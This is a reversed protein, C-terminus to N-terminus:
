LQTAMLVLSKLGKNKKDCLMYSWLFKTYITILSSGYLGIIETEKSILVDPSM